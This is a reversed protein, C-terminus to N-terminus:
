PVPDSPGRAAASCLSARLDKMAKKYPSKRAYKYNLPSCLDAIVLKELNTSDPTLVWTLLLNQVMWSTIRDEYDQELVVKGKGVPTTGPLLDLEDVLLAALSRRLGSFRTTKLHMDMVRMGLGSPADGVYLPTTVDVYPFNEPWFRSLKGGLDWWAYLAADCISAADRPAVPTASLLAAQVAVQDM